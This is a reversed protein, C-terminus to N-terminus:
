PSNEHSAILSTHDPLLQILITFLTM